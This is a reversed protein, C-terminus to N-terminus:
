IAQTFFANWDMRCRETYHGKVGITELELRILSLTTLVPCNVLLDLMFVTCQVQNWIWFFPVHYTGEVRQKTMISM